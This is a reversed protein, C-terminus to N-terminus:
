PACIQKIRHTDLDSSPSATLCPMPRSYRLNVIGNHRTTLRPGRRRGMTVGQAGKRAPQGQCPNKRQGTHINPADLNAKGGPCGGGAEVNRRRKNCMPASEASAYNRVAWVHQYGASSVRGLSRRCSSLYRKALATVRATRRIVGINPEASFLLMDRLLNDVPLFLGDGSFMNPFLLMLVSAGMSELSTDLVLPNKRDPWCDGFGLPLFFTAIGVGVLLTSALRVVFAPVGPVVLPSRPLLTWLAVLSDGMCVPALPLTLSM